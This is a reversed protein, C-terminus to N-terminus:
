YAMASCVLVDASTWALVTGLTRSYNTVTASGVSTTTQVTSNSAPTTVDDCTVHWGTTATPLGIIGASAAGGTGVNITFAATGNSVTVSPSTGFGSSITPTTSSVMMTGSLRYAGWDTTAYASQARNRGKFIGDTTVDLGVGTGGGAIGINVKGDASSSISSRSNNIWGYESGAAISVNSGSFISNLSTIIGSSTLTMPYTAAVGELIYGLKWTGTPTAATAPLVETFFSVTKSASGTWATGSLRVRPSLQVTVGATAPTNNAILVCDTSTTGIDQPCTVVGAGNMASAPIVFVPVSVGAPWPVPVQQAGLWAPCLVLAAVLVSIARKM